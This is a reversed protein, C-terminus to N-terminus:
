NKTAFFYYYRRPALCGSSSKHLGTDEAQNVVIILDYIYFRIWQPFEMPQRPNSDAGKQKQTLRRIRWVVLGLIKPIFLLKKSVHAECDHQFLVKKDIKNIM